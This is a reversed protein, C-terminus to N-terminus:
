FLMTIKDREYEILSKERYLNKEKIYSILEDDKVTSPVKKELKRIASHPVGYEALITLHDPIGNLM